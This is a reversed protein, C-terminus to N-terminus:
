WDKFGPLLGELEKDTLNRWIGQKLPGLQVNIIRVRRLQVVSYDLAQCMLRIQRNLGQTLVIRFGYKAIRSVKCPKTLQNHIRVGRAMIRLFDDTVAKNVGM